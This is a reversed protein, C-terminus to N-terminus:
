DKEDKRNERRVWTVLSYLSLIPAVLFVAVGIAILAIIDNMKTEEEKRRHEPSNRLTRKKSEVLGGGTLRM